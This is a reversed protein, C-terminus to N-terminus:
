GVGRTILDYRYKLRDAADLVVRDLNALLTALGSWDVWSRAKTAPGIDAGSPDRWNTPPSFSPLPIILLHDALVWYRRVPHFGQAL